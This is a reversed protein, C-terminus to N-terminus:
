PAINDVAAAAQAVVRGKGKLFQLHKFYVYRMLGLGRYKPNTKAISSYGTNSFDVKTPIRYLTRWAEETLALWDIHAFEGNVFVCFAIAGKDLRRKSNECHSRFEFGDAALEDAQQNTTIMKFTFNKIKPMFDAENREKVACTYLYYTRYRFFPSVSFLFGKRILPVLGETQLINKAWRFLVYLRYIMAKM